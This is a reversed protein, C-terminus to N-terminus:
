PFIQVHFLSTEWNKLRSVSHPASKEKQMVRLLRSQEESVTSDSSGPSVSRQLSVTSSSYKTKNIDVKQNLYVEEAM